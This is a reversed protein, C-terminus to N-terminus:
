VQTPLPKYEVDTLNVWSSIVGDLEHEFQHVLLSFVKQYNSIKAESVLVM